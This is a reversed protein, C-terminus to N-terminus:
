KFDRPLRIIGPEKPAFGHRLGWIVNRITKPVFFYAYKFLGWVNKRWKRLYAQTQGREIAKRLDAPTKGEFLTYGMGIAEKIHADSTGLESKFLLTRNLYKAKLNEENLTPSASVTELADFKEKILTVAGVGDLTVYEQSKFRTHYFPHAAVAIGGQEHIKRITEKTSLQPQIKEKIFLALVHGEKATIEEGIVVEFDYGKEKVLKRAEYAGEIEDHDTIAIVNLDTKNQVYDVVEEVTPKGDSIKTHIHLDAKSIDPLAIKKFHKDKKM